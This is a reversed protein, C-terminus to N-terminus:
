KKGMFRTIKVITKCNCAAIILAFKFTIFIFSIFVIFLCRSFCTRFLICYLRACHSKQLFIVSEANQSPKKKDYNSIFILFNLFFNTFKQYLILMLSRLSM